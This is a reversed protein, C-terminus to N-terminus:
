LRSSNQDKHSNEGLRLCIHPTHYYIYVCVISNYIYNLQIQIAWYRM